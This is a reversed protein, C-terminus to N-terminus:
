SAATSYELAITRVISYHELYEGDAVSLAGYLVTNCVM